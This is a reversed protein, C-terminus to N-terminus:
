LQKKKVIKKSKIFSHPSGQVEESRRQYFELRDGVIIESKGGRERIRSNNLKVSFIYKDGISEKMTHAPNLMEEATSM